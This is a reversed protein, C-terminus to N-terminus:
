FQNRRFEPEEVRQVRHNTDNVAETPSQKARGACDIPRPDRHRNDLDGDQHCAADPIKSLSELPVNASTMQPVKCQSGLLEFLEPSSIVAM